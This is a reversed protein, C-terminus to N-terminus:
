KRRRWRGFCKIGILLLIISVLISLRFVLQFEEAVVHYQEGMYLALAVLSLIFAVMLLIFLVWHRTKIKSTFMKRGIRILEKPEAIVRGYHKFCLDL